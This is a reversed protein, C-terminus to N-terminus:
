RIASQRLCPETVARVAEGVFTDPSGDPGLYYDRLRARSERLPDAGILVALAGLDDPRVLYCGQEFPVDVPPQTRTLALPKATYLYDSTVSSVDLVAATSRNFCEAITLAGADTSSLHAGGDAALAADIRSIQVRSDADRASFPHPRFIVTAGLRVLEAVIRDGWELSGLRMDALGGRWTPAYLVVPPGGEPAAAVAVDELQPRGVLRFKETGILVGHRAFRDVAAQGAVFILDYIGFAAAYSSPKESDGHGLHVHAPGTLRVGDLNAVDNNVYFLASLSGPVVAALTEVRTVAVVPASTLRALAAVRDPDRALVVFPLGTRALYPLWMTLQYDAEARGAFYVGFRPGAAALAGALAREDARSRSRVVLRLAVLALAVLGVGVLALYLWGSWGTLVWVTAAAALLVLPRGVLDDAPRSPHFDPLRAAAVTLPVLRRLAPMVLLALIVVACATAAVPDPGHALQWGAALGTSLAAPSTPVPWGSRVSPAPGVAIVVLMLACLVAGPVPAVLVILIAGVCCLDGALDPAMSRIVRSYRLWASRM